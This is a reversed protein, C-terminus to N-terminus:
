QCRHCHEKLSLYKLNQGPTGYPKVKLLKLLQQYKIDVNLYALVMTACAALCDAEQQQRQHPVALLTNPM